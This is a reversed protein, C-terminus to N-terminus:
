AKQTEENADKEVRVPDRRQDRVETRLSLFEVQFVQHLAQPRCTAARKANNPTSDPLWTLIFCSLFSKRSSLCGRDLHGVM